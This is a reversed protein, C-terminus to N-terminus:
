TASASRIRRTVRSPTTVVNAADIAPHAILCDGIPEVEHSRHRRLGARGTPDVAFRVRTRWGLGDVDGPVVFLRIGRLCPM